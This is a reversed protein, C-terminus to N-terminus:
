FKNVRFKTKKKVKKSTYNQSLEFAGFMKSDIGPKVQSYRRNKKIENATQTRSLSM